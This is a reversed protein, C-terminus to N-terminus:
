GRREENTHQRYAAYTPDTFPDASAALALEERRHVRLKSLEKCLLDWEVSTYLEMVDRNRLGHTARRVLEKDVGAARALSIFTRRMDHVRRARWQRVWLDGLLRKYTDHDGREKGLPTRRGAPALLRV